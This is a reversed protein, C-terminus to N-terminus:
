RDGLLIGGRYFLYLAMIQVVHYLDNHNFRRHPSVKRLQIVAAVVSIMVGAILWPAAAAGTRAWGVLALACLAIMSTGYDAVVITYDDRRRAVAVYAVFKAAALGILLTRTAGATFAVVASAFIALGALGMVYQTAKWLKDKTTPMMHLAFGHVVGGIAAAVAAFVFSAAWIRQALDGRSQEAAHLTAVALGVCIGAIAFDTLMTAVETIRLAGVVIPTTESMREM